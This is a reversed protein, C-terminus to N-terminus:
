KPAASAPARQQHGACVAFERRIEQFLFDRLLRVRQPLQRSAPHVLYLAGAHLQYNPLISVLEGSVLAPMALHRPLLAVGLGECAFRMVLPFDDANVPGRVTV